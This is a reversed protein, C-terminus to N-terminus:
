AGKGKAGSRDAAALAADKGSEGADEGGDKSVLKLGVIGAILLVTFFLRWFEAPENLFAMGAIVTGVTGMGTFMAYAVGIELVKMSRAFLVFSAVLLAATLISPGLRTFGESYKLGFTWGVELIGAM